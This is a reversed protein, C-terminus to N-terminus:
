ADGCSEKRKKIVKQHLARHDAWRGKQCEVGCYREKHCPCRRMIIPKEKCYSCRNDYERLIEEIKQCQKLSGGSLNLHQPSKFMEILDIADMGMYNPDSIDSNHQCLLEVVDIHGQSMAHHLAISSTIDDKIHISAQYELLIKCVDYHGHQAAILLPSEKQDSLGSGELYKKWEFPFDADRAGDPSVRCYDLLLKCARVLGKSAMKTLLLRIECYERVDHASHTDTIQKVKAEDMHVVARELNTRWGFLDTMRYNDENAPPRCIWHRPVAIDPTFNRLPKPTESVYQVRGTDNPNLIDRALGQAFARNNNPDVAFMNSTTGDQSREKLRHKVAAEQIIESHACTQCFFQHSLQLVM